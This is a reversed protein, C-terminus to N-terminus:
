WVDAEMKRQISVEDEMTSILRYLRQDPIGAIAKYIPNDIKDKWTEFDDLVVRVLGTLELAFASLDDKKHKFMSENNTRYDDGFKKDFRQLCM